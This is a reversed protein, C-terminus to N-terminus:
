LVSYKEAGNQWYEQKDLSAAGDETHDNSSPTTPLTQDFLGLIRKKLLQRSEAGTQPATLAATALGLLFYKAAMWITKFFHRFM